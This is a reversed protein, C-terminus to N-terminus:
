VTGQSRPQNGVTIEIRTAASSYYLLFINGSCKHYKCLNQASKPDIIKLDKGKKKTATKKELGEGSEKKQPAGKAAFTKTLEDFLGPKELKDEKAKAWFTNEKFNKM